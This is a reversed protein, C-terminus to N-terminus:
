SELSKQYMYHSIMDTIETLKPQVPIKEINHTKMDIWFINNNPGIEYGYISSLIYLYLSIQLTYKTIKSDGLHQIPPKMYKGFSYDSPKKETVKFDHVQVIRNDIIQVLDATGSIMLEPDFLLCESFLQGRFKHESIFKKLIPTFKNKKIKGHKIYAEATEHWMKGQSAAQDRKDHWRKQLMESSIGEKLACRKLISGDIDFKDHFTTIFATVSIFRKDGLTYIHDKENFVVQKADSIFNPIIKNM